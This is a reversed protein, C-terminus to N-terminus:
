GGPASKTFKDGATFELPQLSSWTFRRGLAKTVGRLGFLITLFSSAAGISSTASFIDRGAKLTLLLQFIIRPM